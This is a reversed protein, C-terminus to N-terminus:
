CFIAVSVNPYDTRAGAVSSTSFRCQKTTKATGAAGGDDLLLGSSAGTVCYNANPMATTFTVTYDGVGNDTISAV